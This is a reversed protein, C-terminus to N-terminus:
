ELLFEGKLTTNGYTIKITYDGSAWSDTPIFVESTSYTDVTDSSIINNEADYVTIIADGVPLEFYVSLVTESIFARVPIYTLSLPKPGPLIPDKFLDIEKVQAFLGSTFAVLLISFLIYRKM